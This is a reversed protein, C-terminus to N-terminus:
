ALEPFFLQIEAKATEPSDSGHIANIGKDTGFLNRITGEAAKQSDTEGMLNRWEAIAGEKELTMIVVPGSTMFEVLESFFPREKHVAYFVEAKAKNMRIKEMGLIEFGNEEILDIVKGSNKASVVDPKIIAFTQEKM